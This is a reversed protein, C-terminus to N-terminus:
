AASEPRMVEIIEKRLRVIENLTDIFNRYPKAPGSQMHVLLTTCFYWNCRFPRASRKLTCGHESIFQCPADDTMNSDFFPPTIEAADFFALDEEDHRGHRNKCCVSTCSPCVVSTNKQIFADISGILEIVRLAKAKIQAQHLAKM